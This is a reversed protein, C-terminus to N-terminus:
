DNPRGLHVGAQRMEEPSLKLLVSFWRLVRRIQIAM